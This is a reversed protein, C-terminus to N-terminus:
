QREVPWPRVSGDADIRLVHVHGNSQRKLFLAAVEAGGVLDFSAIPSDIPSHWGDDFAVSATAEGLAAPDTLRLRIGTGPQRRWVVLLKSGITATKVGEAPGPVLERPESWLADLPRETPGYSIKGCPLTASTPDLTCVAGDDLAVHRHPGPGPETRPTSFGVRTASDLDDDDLIHRALGPARAEPAIRDFTEFSQEALLGFSHTESWHSELTGALSAIPNDAYSGEALEVANAAARVAAACSRPFTANAPNPSADYAELQRRRIRADASEGEHLPSGLLCHRASTVAAVAAATRGLHLFLAPGGLGLVGVLVVVGGRILLRRRRARAELIFEPTPEPPEPPLTAPHRYASM